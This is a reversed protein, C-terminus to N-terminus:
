HSAVMSVTKVLDSELPVRSHFTVKTRLKLSQSTSTTNSNKLSQRRNTNGGHTQIPQFPTRTRITDKIGTRIIRNQTSSRPPTKRPFANPCRFSGRSYSEKNPRRSPPPDKGAIIEHPLAICHSTPTTHATTILLCYIM